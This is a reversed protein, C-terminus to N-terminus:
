TDGDADVQLLQQDSLKNVNRSAEFLETDKLQHEPSLLKELLPIDSPHFYFIERRAYNTLDLPEEAEM